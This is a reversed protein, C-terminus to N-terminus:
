QPPGTFGKLPNGYLVDTKWANKDWPGDQSDLVAVPVIVGPRRDGDAWRVTYLVPVGGAFQGDPGVTFKISRSLEDNRLVRVEYEGPNASLAHHQPSDKNPRVDVTPFSCNVRAWRGKQPASAGAERNPQYEMDISCDGGGHQWGYKEYLGVKEGRQFLHASLGVAGNGGRIWFRVNLKDQEGILVHGIPLNWDQNAFYVFQKSTPPINGSTLVKEVKARGNFLTKDIGELPNRMKIAFPFVGTALTSGADMEDRGGCEFTPGGHTTNVCRVKVWAGGDPQAVEVYYHAGSPLATGDTTFTVKPM